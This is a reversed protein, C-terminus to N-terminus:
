GRRGVRNLAITQAEGWPADRDQANQAAQMFVIADHTATITVKEEGALGHVAEAEDPISFPDSYQWLGFLGLVNDDNHDYLWDGLREDLDSLAKGILCGVEKSIPDGDGDYGNVVYYSCGFQSQPFAHSFVFDEGRAEVAGAVADVVTDLDLRINITM